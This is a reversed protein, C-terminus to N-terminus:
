CENDWDIWDADVADFGCIHNNSYDKILYYEVFLKQPYDNRDLHKM